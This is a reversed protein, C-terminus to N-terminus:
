IGVPPISAASSAKEVPPRTACTWGFLKKVLFFLLFPGFAVRVIRLLLGLLAAILSPRLLFGAAAAVGIAGWPNQSICAECNKQWAGASEPFIEPSNTM